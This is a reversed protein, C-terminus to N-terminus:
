CWRRARRAAVGHVARRHRRSGVRGGFEVYWRRSPQLRDQAFVAVDRATCASRRRVPTTSGARSAHRRLARDAGTRQRQNRRLREDHRGFGVKFLHLGGPWQHSTSVTEVWQVTSTDRQQRNFFNGLTTEPLLEMPAPGQGHVGNSYRHLQVTTEVFTAGSLLTRETVMAYGVPRYHRGDSGDAHVHRAHDQQAAGQDFGGTM